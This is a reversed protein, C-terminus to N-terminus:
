YYNSGYIISSSKWYKPKAKKQMQSEGKLWCKIANMCVNTVQGTFWTQTSELPISLGAGKQGPDASGAM